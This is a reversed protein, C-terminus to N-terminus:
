RCEVLAYALAEEAGMAQGEEWLFALEDDELGEHLRSLTSDYGVQELADVFVGTSQFLQSTAALLRAAVPMNERAAALRAFSLLTYSDIMMNRLQRAIEVKERLLAAAKDLNGEDLEVEVLNHLGGAVMETAGLERYLDLSKQYLIRAEANKYALRMGEARLLLHLGLLDADGIQQAIAIGEETVDLLVDIDRDQLMVRPISALAYGLQLPDGLERAIRLSEEAFSRAGEQDGHLSSQFSAVNLASVRLENHEPCADLFTKFWEVGEAVHGRGFWFGDLATTFELGLRPEGHDRLWGLATRMNDLERELRELCVGFGPERRALVAERAVGLFYQAHAERTPREEGSHALKEAAYERVTELMFFRPESNAGEV